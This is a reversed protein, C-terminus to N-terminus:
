QKAKFFTVQNTMLKILRKDDREHSRFTPLLDILQQIRHESSLRPLAWCEELLSAGPILCRATFDFGQQVCVALGVM